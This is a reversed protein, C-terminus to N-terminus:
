FNLPVGQKPFIIKLQLKNTERLEKKIQQENNGAPKIHTIVVPLGKLSSTGCLSSLTQMEQMLLDPTLHGFLQNDPQSRPFSVEIFIAKLKKDIILPTIHKWLQKLHDSREISDAGTDGLYLLYTSDHRILFATSLGPSSHSLLFPQVFMKTGELATEKNEELDIYHYKKLQPAEGKDGFNAWSEWTFYKEELVKLCFPM